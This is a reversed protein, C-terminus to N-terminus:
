ISDEFLKGTRFYDKEAWITLSSRSMVCIIGQRLNAIKVRFINM